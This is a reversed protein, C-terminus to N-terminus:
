YCAAGRLPSDLPRTAVPMERILKRDAESLASANAWGVYGCRPCTGTALTQGDVVVERPCGCSLCEVVYSM